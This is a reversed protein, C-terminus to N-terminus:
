SQQQATALQTEASLTHMHATLQAMLDAANLADATAHEVALMEIHGAADSLKAYGFVAGSGRIRHALVEIEKLTPQGGSPLETVLRQLDVIEAVTRALFRAGIEAMKRRMIEEANQMPTDTM